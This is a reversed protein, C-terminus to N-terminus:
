TRPTDSWEAIHIPDSEPKLCKTSYSGVKCPPHDPLGAEDIVNETRTHGYENTVVSVQKLAGVMWAIRTRDTEGEFVHPFKGAFESPTGKVPDVGIALALGRLAEVEETDLMGSGFDMSGALSDFLIQATLKPITIQEDSM